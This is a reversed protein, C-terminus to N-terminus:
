EGALCGFACRGRRLATVFRSALMTWAMTVAVAPRVPMTAITVPSTITRRMAPAVLFAVAISAAITVAATVPVAIAIAVATAMAVVIAMPFRSRAVGSLPFRRALLIALAVLLAFRFALSLTFALTFTLALALFLVVTLALLCGVRRGRCRSGTSCASHARSRALGLQRGFGIAVTWRLIAPTAFASATTAPTPATTASAITLGTMAATAFHALSVEGARALCAVFLASEM